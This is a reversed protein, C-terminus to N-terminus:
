QLLRWVSILVSNFFIKSLTLFSDFVDFQNYLYIYTLYCRLVRILSSVPQGALRGQVSSPSFQFGQKSVPNRVLFSSRDGVRCYKQSEKSNETVILKYFIVNYPWTWSLWALSGLVRCFVNFSFAWFLFNELILVKSLKGSWFKRRSM